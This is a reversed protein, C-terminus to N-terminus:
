GFLSKGRPAEDTEENAAAKETDPTDPDFPPETVAPEPEAEAPDPAQIPEAKAKPARKVPEKPAETVPATSAEEPSLDIGAEITQGGKRSVTFNITDVPSTMGVKVLYDRIAAEIDAQSLQIQIQM